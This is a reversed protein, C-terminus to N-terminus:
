CAPVRQFGIRNGNEDFIPSSRFGCGGDFGGRAPRFDSRFGPEQSRASGAVVAGVAVGVIGAALVKGIGAQAPQATTLGASTLTLAAVTATLTKKFM